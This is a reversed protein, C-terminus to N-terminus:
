VDHRAIEAWGWREEPLRMPRPAVPRPAERTALSERIQDALEEPTAVLGSWFRWAPAASKLSPAGAGEVKCVYRVEDDEWLAFRVRLPPALEPGAGRLADRVAQEFARALAPASEDLPNPAFVLDIPM